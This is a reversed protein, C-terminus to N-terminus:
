RLYFALVITDLGYKFITIGVASRSYQFQGTPDTIGRIGSLEEPLGLIELQEPAFPIPDPMVAFISLPYGSLEIIGTDIEAQTLVHPLNIKMEADLLHLTFDNWGATTGGFLTTNIISTGLVAGAGGGLISVTTSLAEGPDTAGLLDAGTLMLKRFKVQIGIASAPLQRRTEIITGDPQVDFKVGAQPNDIASQPIAGAPRERSLVPHIFGHAVLDAINFALFGSPTCSM